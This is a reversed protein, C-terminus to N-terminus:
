LDLIQCTSYPKVWEREREREIVGVSEWDTDIMNICWHQHFFPDLISVCILPFSYVASFAQTNSNQLCSLATFVTAKIDSFARTVNSHCQCSVASKFSSFIDHGDSLYQFIETQGLSPFQHVTLSVLTAMWQAVSSGHRLNTDILTMSYM